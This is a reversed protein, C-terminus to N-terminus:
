RQKSIFRQKVKTVLSSIPMQGKSNKKSHYSFCM